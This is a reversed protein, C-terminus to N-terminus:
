RSFYCPNWEDNVFGRGGAFDGVEKEIKTPTAAKGRWDLEGGTMWLKCPPQMSSTRDGIMQAVEVYDHEASV